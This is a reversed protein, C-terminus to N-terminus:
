DIPSTLLRLVCVRLGDHCYGARCRYFLHVLSFFSFDTPSDKLLFFGIFDRLTVASKHTDDLARLYM